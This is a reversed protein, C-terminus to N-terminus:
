FGTPDPAPSGSYKSRLADKRSFFEGHGDAFGINCRADEHGEAILTGRNASGSTSKKLKSEHRSAGMDM